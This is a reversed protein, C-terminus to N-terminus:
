ETLLAKVDWSEIIKVGKKELESLVYPDVVDYVFWVWDGSWVPEKKPLKTHNCILFEPNLTKAREKSEDDYTKIVWGTRVKAFRKALEIVDYDFSIIIRKDAIADSAALVSLLTPEIGFQQISEKKIEVYVDIDKGALQASVEKLSSVACPFHKQGFRNPEHASIGSLESFNLDCINKSVNATRELSMDHHVVPVGDLTLQIDFEVGKAGLEYTALIGELSNEPFVEPWGRHGVLEIAKKRM